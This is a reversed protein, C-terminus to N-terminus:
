YLDSTGPSVQCGKESNQQLFVKKRFQLSIAAVIPASDICLAHLKNKKWAAKEESPVGNGHIRAIRFLFMMMIGAVSLDWWHKIVIMLLENTSRFPYALGGVCLDRETWLV